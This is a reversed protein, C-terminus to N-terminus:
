ESDQSGRRSRAAAQAYIRDEVKQAAKSTKAAEQAKALATEAIRGDLEKRVSDYDPMVPPLEAFQSILTKREQKTWERVGDLQSALDKCQSVIEASTKDHTIVEGYTTNADPQWGVVEAYTDRIIELANSQRVVAICQRRMTGTTAQLSALLREQAEIAVEVEALGDDPLALKKTGKKVQALISEIDNALRSKKINDREEILATLTARASAMLDLRLHAYTGFSNNAAKGFTKGTTEQFRMALRVFADGPQSLTRPAPTYNTNM